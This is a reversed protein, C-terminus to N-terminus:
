KQSDIHCRTRLEAKDMKRGCAVAESLHEFLSRPIKIVDAQEQSTSLFTIPWLQQSVFTLTDSFTLTLL